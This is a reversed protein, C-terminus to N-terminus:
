FQCPLRAYFFGEERIPAPSAIAKVSDSKWDSPINRTFESTSNVGGKKPPTITEKCFM